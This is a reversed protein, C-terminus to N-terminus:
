PCYPRTAGTVRDCNLQAAGAAPKRKGDRKAAQRELGGGADTEDVVSYGGWVPDPAHDYGGRM